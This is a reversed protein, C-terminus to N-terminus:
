ENNDTGWPNMKMPTAFNDSVTKVKAVKAPGIIEVRVATGNYFYDIKGGRRLQMVDDKTLQIPIHKM